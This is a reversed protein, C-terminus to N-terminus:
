NFSVSRLMFGLRRGEPTAMMKQTGLEIRSWGRPFECELLCTAPKQLTGSSQLVITEDHRAMIKQDAMAGSIELVLQRRGASASFVEFATDPQIAWRIATHINLDPFPGEAIDFGSVPVWLGDRAEFVHSWGTDAVSAFLPEASRNYRASWHGKIRDAIRGVHPNRDANYWTPLNNIIASALNLDEEALKTDVESFYHTLDNTLQGARKRHWAIITDLMLYDAYKAFRRWLDWDGALRFNTDVGGIKNWLSARWFTGEQMIFPFIRGDYVGAAMCERSWPIAPGIISVSGDMNALCARGGVLENEPLDGFSSLVASIAGAMLGDDANLWTMIHEPAPALQRFGKAIADYMGNDSEINLSFDVGCCMIPFQGSEIIEQWRRAIEISGDTSGGDQIHYRVCFKGAQSLVSAIAEGLHPACNLCPTVVHVEPTSAVKFEQAAVRHNEIATLRMDSRKTPKGSRRWERLKTYLEIDAENASKVLSATKADLEPIAAAPSKNLHGVPGANARTVKCVEEVLGGIEDHFFWGDFVDDLTRIAADPDPRGCILNTMKNASHPLSVYDTLTLQSVQDYAYHDPNNATYYYESLTRGIPERITTFTHYTELDLVGKYFELDFHGGVARFTGRQSLSMELFSRRVDPSYIQCVNDRGFIHRLSAWVSTGACKPIHFFFIREVM